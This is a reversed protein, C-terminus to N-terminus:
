LQRGILLGLWVAGLCLAVSMVINALAKVPEGQEILALTELSFTSFTTFAGLLGILLGARLEVGFTVRDLLLEYLVGMALCGALNAVLTGYPFDRGAIAYTATSVWFRLLAGASGGVAIAV